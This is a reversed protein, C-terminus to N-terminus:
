DSTSQQVEAAMADEINKLQALCAAEDGADMAEKAAALYGDITKDSPPKGFWNETPKADSNTVEVTGETTPVTVDEPKTEQSQATTWTESVESYKAECDKSTNSAAFAPVAVILTTLSLATTIRKM